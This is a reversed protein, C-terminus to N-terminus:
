VHICPWFLFIPSGPVQPEHHLMWCNQDCKSNISTKSRQCLYRWFGLNGRFGSPKSSCNNHELWQLIGMLSKQYGSNTSLVHNSAQYMQGSAKKPLLELVQYMLFRRSSILSTGLEGLVVIPIWIVPILHLLKSASCFIEILGFYPANSLTHVGQLWLLNTRLAM